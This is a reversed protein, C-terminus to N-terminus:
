RPRSNYRAQWRTVIRAPAARAWLLWGGAACSAGAADALLDFADPSRRPVFSQHFEDTLGYAIALVAAMCVIRVSVPQTWGGALARVILLCLGAYAAAHGAKDWVRIPLDPGESSSSGAFIAAMYIVVPAWLSVLAWARRSSM